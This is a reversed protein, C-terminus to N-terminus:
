TIRGPRMALPAPHTANEYSGRARPRDKVGIERVCLGIGLPYDRAVEKAPAGVELSRTTVGVRKRSELLRLLEDGRGRVEDVDRLAVDRDSM